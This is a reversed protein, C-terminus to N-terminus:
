KKSMKQEKNKLCKLYGELYGDHPGTCLYTKHLTITILTLQTLRCEALLYSSTFVLYVMPIHSSGNQSIFIHLLLPSILYLTAFLNFM